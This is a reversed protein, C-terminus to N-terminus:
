EMAEFVEISPVSITVYQGTPIKSGDVELQILNDGIRFDALGDKYMKELIGTIHIDDGKMLISFKNEKSLKIDQGWTLEDTIDLEVEYETNSKPVPKTGWFAEAGGYESTFNIIIDETSLDVETVHIKM